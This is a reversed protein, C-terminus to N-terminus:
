HCGLNRIAADAGTVDFDVFVVGATGFLVKARLRKATVLDAVPDQGPVLKTLSVLKPLALMRVGNKGVAKLADSQVPGEDWRYQAVVKKVHGLETLGTFMLGLAPEPPQNSFVAVCHIILAGTVPRGNLVPTSKAVDIATRAPKDTLPDAKGDVIRWASPEAQALTAALVAAIAITPSIRM